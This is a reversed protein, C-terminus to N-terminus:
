DRADAGNGQPRTRRGAAMLRDLEVPDGTAPVEMWGPAAAHLLRAVDNWSRQVWRRGGTAAIRFSNSRRSVLIDAGGIEILITM